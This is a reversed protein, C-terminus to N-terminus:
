LRTTSAELRSVVGGGVTVEQKKLVPQLRVHRRQVASFM